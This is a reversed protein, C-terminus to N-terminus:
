GKLRIAIEIPGQEVVVDVAGKTGEPGDAGITFRGPPLAIKFRGESNSRIGIEPTPASGHAVAILAGAVPAGRADLM